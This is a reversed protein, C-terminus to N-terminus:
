SVALTGKMGAEEHGPVTCSFTYTGPALTASVSTQGGDAVTESTASVDNGEIAVDHPVSSDNTLM